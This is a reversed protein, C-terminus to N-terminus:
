RNLLFGAIFWLAVSIMMRVRTLAPLYATTRLAPVKKRAGVGPCPSSRHDAGHSQWAVIEGLLVGARECLVHQAVRLDLPEEVLRLLPDPLSM